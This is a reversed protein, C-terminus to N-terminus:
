CKKGSCYFPFFLLLFGGGGDRHCDGYGRVQDQHLQVFGNVKGKAPKAGVDPKAPSLRKPGLNSMSMSMKKASTPTPKPMGHRKAPAVTSTPSASSMAHLNHSRIGRPKSLADLRSMSVAKGPSRLM